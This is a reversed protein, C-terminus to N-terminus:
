GPDLRLRLGRFSKGIREGLMKELRRQHFRKAQFLWLNNEVYVTLVGHDLTGPRCHPYMEAGVLEESWVSAVLNEEGQRTELESRLRGLVVSVMDGLPIAERWPLPRTYDAIGCREREVQWRGRSFRRSEGEGAKKNM